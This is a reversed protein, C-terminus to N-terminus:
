HSLEPDLTLAPLRRTRSGHEAPAATGLNRAPRGETPSSGSSCFAASGSAM